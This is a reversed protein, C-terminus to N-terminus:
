DGAEIPEGDDPRADVYIMGWRSVDPKSAM